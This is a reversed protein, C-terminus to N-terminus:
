YGGPLLSLGSMSQGFKRRRRNQSRIRGVGQGCEACRPTLTAGRAALNYGKPM